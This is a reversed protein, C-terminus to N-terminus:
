LHRGVRHYNPCLDHRDLRVLDGDTRSASTWLYILHHHHDVRYHYLHHNLLLLLLFLLLLGM